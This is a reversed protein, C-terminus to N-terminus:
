KTKITDAFTKDYACGCTRVIKPTMDAAVVQPGFIPSGCARCHGVVHLSPEVRLPGTPFTNRVMPQGDELVSKMLPDINFGNPLPNSFFRPM